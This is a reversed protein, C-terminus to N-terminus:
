CPWRATPGTTSPPLDLAMTDILRESARDWFLLMNSSDVTVVQKGGARWATAEVDIFNLNLGEVAGDFPAEAATRAALVLAGAAVIRKLGRM